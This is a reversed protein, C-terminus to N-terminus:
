KKSWIVRDRGVVGILILTTVPGLLACGFSIILDECTVKEERFVCFALFSLFGIAWWTSLFIELTM